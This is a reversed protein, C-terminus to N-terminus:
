KNLQEKEWNIADAATTLQKRVDGVIQLYQSPAYKPMFFGLNNLKEAVDPNDLAAEMANRLTEVRDAPTDPKVVFWNWGMASLGTLGFDAGYHALIPADDFLKRVGENENMVVLATLGDKNARYTNPSVFSFDIVGARLDKHADADQKYPINRAYVGNSRMLQALIMHPLSGYSGSSYRMKGPNDQMYKIFSPFDSFRDDGKRVALAFPVAGASWLPVFDQAEFDANGLLPQLVLPAVWADIVTYGDAPKALGATTARVGAAGPQSAVPLAVGLESAMGDAIIQTASLAGGPGWPFFIEINREPYNEAAAAGAVFSAAATLAAALSKLKMIQRWTPIILNAM